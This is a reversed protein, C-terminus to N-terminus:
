TSTPKLVCQEKIMKLPLEAWQLCHLIYGVQGLRKEKVHACIYKKSGSAANTYEKARYATVRATTIEKPESYFKRM